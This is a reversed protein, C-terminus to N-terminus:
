VDKMLLRLKSFLDVFPGCQIGHAYRVVCMLRVRPPPASDMHLSKLSYPTMESVSPLSHNDFPSIKFTQIIMEWSESYSPM